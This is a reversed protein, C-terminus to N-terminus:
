DLRKEVEKAILETIGRDMTGARPLVDNHGDMAGIGVETVLWTFKEQHSRLIRRSCECRTVWLTREMWYGLVGVRREQTTACDISQDRAESVQQTALIIGVGM